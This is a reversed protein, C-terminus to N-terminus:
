ANELKIKFILKLLSHNIHLITQHTNVLTYIEITVMVILVYFMAM